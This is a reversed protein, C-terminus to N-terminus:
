NVRLDKEYLYARGASEWELLLKWHGKSMNTLPLNVQNGNDSVIELMRDMKKDSSHIFKLNGTAPQQFVIKLSDDSTIVPEAHDKQVQNKRNYDKDYGIGKEYYNTDVLDDSSSRIMLVGLTVIFSIFLGMSIVLKTGWNM